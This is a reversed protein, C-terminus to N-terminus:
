SVGFFLRAHQWLSQERFFKTDEDLTSGWFNYAPSDVNM